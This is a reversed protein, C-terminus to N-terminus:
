TRGTGHCAGCKNTEAPDNSSMGDGNCSPCISWLTVVKPSPASTPATRPIQICKEDISTVTLMDTASVFEIAAQWAACWDAYSVERRKSQGFGVQQAVVSNRHKEYAELKANSM